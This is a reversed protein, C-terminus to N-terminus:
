ICMTLLSFRGSNEFSNKKVILLFRLYDIQLRFLKSSYFFTKLYVGTILNLNKKFVYLRYNNKAISLCSLLYMRAHEYTIIAAM